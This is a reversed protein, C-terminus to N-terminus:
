VPQTEVQQILRLVSALIDPGLQSLLSERGLRAQLAMYVAFHREIFVDCGDVLNHRDTTDQLSKEIVQATMGIIDTPAIIGGHKHMFFDVAGQKSNPPIIPLQERFRHCVVNCIYNCRQEFDQEEEDVKWNVVCPKALVYTMCILGGADLNDGFASSIDAFVRAFMTIRQVAKNWPVPTTYDLTERSFTFLMQCMTVNVARLVSNKDDDTPLRLVVDTVGGFLDLCFLTQFDIQSWHLPPHFYATVVLQIFMMVLNRLTPAVLATVTHRQVWAQDLLPHDNALKNAANEEKEIAKQAVITAAAM